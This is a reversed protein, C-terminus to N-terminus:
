ILQICKHISQSTDSVLKYLKNLKFKVVYQLVILTCPLAYKSSRWLFIYRETYRESKAWLERKSQKQHIHLEARRSKSKSFTFQDRYISVPWTNETLDISM